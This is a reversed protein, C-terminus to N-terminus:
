TRESLPVQSNVPPKPTGEVFPPVLFDKQLLASPTGVAVSISCEAELRRFGIGHWWAQGSRAM